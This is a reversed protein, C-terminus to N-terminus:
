HRAGRTRRRAAPGCVRVYPITLPAAEPMLTLRPRSAHACVELLQKLQNVNMARWYGMNAASGQELLSTRAGLVAATLLASFM